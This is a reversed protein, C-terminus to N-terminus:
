YFHLYGYIFLCLIFLIILNTYNLFSPVTFTEVMGKTMTTRGNNYKTEQNCKSFIQDYQEWSIDGPIENMVRNLCDKKIFNNKNRLIVMDTLKNYPLCVKSYNPDYQDDNINNQDDNINNQNDNFNNENMLGTISKKSVLNKIDTTSKKSIPKKEKSKSNQVGM